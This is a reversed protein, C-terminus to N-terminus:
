FIMQRIEKLVAKEIKFLSFLYITLGLLSLISIRYYFFIEPQQPLSYKLLIIVLGMLLSSLLGPKFVNYIDSLKIQILKMTFPLYVLVAILSSISVVVGVGVTGWIRAAPTLFLFFLGVQIVGFWFGAKPHGTANFLPGMAVPLTNFLGAFALVKLIPIAQLWKSGYILRILEGGLSLLGLCFPFAFIAVLKTTKLFAQKLDYIDSQLKSFAPFIVRYVKSAFYDALFNALNFAIAYLGLATVGLLKGVLINDLNMKLFWVLGGLFLFKGFHFMELAIKKDFEFKPHWRSFIFTLTNQYLTKLIYAVVLSWVRFKLLALIIASLSYIIATTIEIIAVQRFRMNKELLAHPVKGLCSIVFIIGLARIIGVVEINNLFRGITPAFINLILYLTIGLMPIIFFATNAAKDINDKHQILASDFGMSKFLGLADIAVFALSFLGFEAPGLLRALVVTSAIQIARQLFSSGVLWKIGSVTQRKLQNM